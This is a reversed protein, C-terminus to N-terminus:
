GTVAGFEVRKLHCSNASLAPKPELKGYSWCLGHRFNIRIDLQHLYDDTSRTATYALKPATAIIVAHCEEIFSEDDCCHFSVVFTKVPLSSPCFACFAVTLLGYISKLCGWQLLHGICIWTRQTCLKGDTCITSSKLYLEIIQSFETVSIGAM